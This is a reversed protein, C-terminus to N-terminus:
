GYTTKQARIAKRISTPVQSMKSIEGIKESDYEYVLDGELTPFLDRLKESSVGGSIGTLIQNTDRMGYVGGYITDFYQEVFFTQGDGSDAIDVSSQCDLVEIQAFGSETHLRGIAKILLLFDVDEFHVQSGIERGIQCSGDGDWYKARLKM